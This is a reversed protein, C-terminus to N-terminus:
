PRCEVGRRAFRQRIDNRALFGEHRDVEHGEGDLFVQTPIINIGYRRPTEEDKWVDVEEVAISTGCEERLRALEEHMAKCSRCSTSGLEVLRPGTAAPAQVVPASSRWPRCTVAGAVGLGVLALVLLRMPRSPAGAKDKSADLM